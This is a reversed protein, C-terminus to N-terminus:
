GFVSAQRDEADTYFCGRQVQRKGTDERRNELLKLSLYVPLAIFPRVQEAEAQDANLGMVARSIQGM